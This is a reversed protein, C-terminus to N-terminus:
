INIYYAVDNLAASYRVRTQVNQSDFDVEATQM